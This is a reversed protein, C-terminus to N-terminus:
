LFRVSWFNDRMAPNREIASNDLEVYLGFMAGIAEGIAVLGNPESLRHVITKDDRNNWVIKPPGPRKYELLSHRRDYLLYDGSQPTIPENTNSDFLM